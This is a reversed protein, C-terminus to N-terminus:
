LLGDPSCRPDTAEDCKMQGHLMIGALVLHQQGPRCCFLCFYNTANSIGYKFWPMVQSEHVGGGGQM